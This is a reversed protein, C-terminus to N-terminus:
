RSDRQGTYGGDLPLRRLQRCERSLRHDRSESNEAAQRIMVVLSRLTVREAHIGSGAPVHLFKAATGAERLSSSHPSATCNPLCGHGAQATQGASGDEHHVNSGSLHPPCLSPLTGELSLLAEPQRSVKLGPVQEMTTFPALSPVQRPLPGWM